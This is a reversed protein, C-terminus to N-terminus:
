SNLRERAVSQQSVARPMRSFSVVRCGRQRDFRWVREICSHFFARPEAGAARYRNARSARNAREAFGVIDGAGGTAEDM